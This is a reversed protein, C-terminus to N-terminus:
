RDRGTDGETGAGWMGLPLPMGDSNPVPARLLLELQGGCDPCRVTEPEDISLFLEHLQGCRWCSFEYTPM